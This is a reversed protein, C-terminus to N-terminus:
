VNAGIDGQTSNRADVEEAQIGTVGNSNSGCPRYKVQGIEIRYHVTFTDVVGNVIVAVAGVLTRGGGLVLSCIARDGRNSVCLRARKLLPEGVAVAKICYHMVVAYIAAIEVM